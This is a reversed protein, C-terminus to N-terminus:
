GMLMQSTDLDADTLHAIGILVCGRGLDILLFRFHRVNGWAERKCTRATVIVEMVLLFM